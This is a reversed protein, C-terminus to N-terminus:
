DAPMRVHGHMSTVCPLSVRSFEDVNRFSPFSCNPVQFKLLRSLMMIIVRSIDQFSRTHVSVYLWLYVCVCVCVSVCLSEVSM